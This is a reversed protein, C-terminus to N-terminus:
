TPPRYGEQWFEAQPKFAGLQIAVGRFNWYTFERVIKRERYSHFTMGRAYTTKGKAPLELFDMNHTAKWVWNIVAWEDYEFDAGALTDGSWVQWQEQTYNEPSTERKVGRQEGAPGGDYRIVDFQHVGAPSDPGDDNFPLFARYLDEKNDITQFLTVDEFVFDDAYYHIIADAGGTFFTDIWDDGTSMNMQGSGKFGQTSDAFAASGTIGSTLAAGGIAQLFRRRQASTTKRNLYGLHM